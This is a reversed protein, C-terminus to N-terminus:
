ANCPFSFTPTSIYENQQFPAGAFSIAVRTQTFYSAKNKGSCRYTLNRQELTRENSNTRKATAVSALGWWEVRRITSEILISKVPKECSVRPKSGIGGNPFGNASKRSWMVGPANECDNGGWSLRMISIEGQNSNAGTDSKSVVGTDEAWKGAAELATVQDWTLDDETPLPASSDYVPAYDPINESSLLQETLDVEDTEAAVASTGSLLGAALTIAIFFTGFKINM